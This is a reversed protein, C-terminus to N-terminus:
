VNYAFRSKDVMLDAWMESMDDYVSNDLKVDIANCTELDTIKSVEIEGFYSKFEISLVFLTEDIETTTILNM